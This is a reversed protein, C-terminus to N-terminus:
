FVFTLNLVLLVASSRVNYNYVHWFFAMYEKKKKKKKVKPSFKHGEVKRWRAVGSIYTFARLHAPPSSFFNSMRDPKWAVSIAFPEKVHRDLCQCLAVRRVTIGLFRGMETAKKRRAHLYPPDIRLRLGGPGSPSIQSLFIICNIGAFWEFVFQRIVMRIGEALVCKGIMKTVNKHRKSSSLPIGCPLTNPGIKNKIYM